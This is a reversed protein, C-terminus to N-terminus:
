ARPTTTHAVVRWGFSAWRGRTPEWRKEGYHCLNVQSHGAIMRQDGIAIADSETAPWSQDYRLMDVPFGWNPSEVTYVHIYQKSM